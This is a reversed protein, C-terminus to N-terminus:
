TLEIDEGSKEDKLYYLTCDELDAKYDLKLDFLKTYFEMSKQVDYSRIMSHLFKM